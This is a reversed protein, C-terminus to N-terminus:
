GSAPGFRLHGRVDRRFPDPGEIIMVCTPTPSSSTRCALPLPPCLFLRIERLPANFTRDSSRWLSNLDRQGSDRMTPSITVQSPASPFLKMTLALM